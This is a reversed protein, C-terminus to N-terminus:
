TTSREGDAVDRLLPLSRDRESMVTPEVPWAIGIDPDNWRFGVASEPRYPEAMQYTLESGCEMTVFGHAVGKPLYVSRALDPGLEFGAWSGFGRSGVRVDVMVDFVRGRTCRILKTEGYPEAQFHMGRLTGAASTFSSSAQLLETALGHREFESKDFTRAFWGRNDEVTEHDIVWAGAIDSVETFRM